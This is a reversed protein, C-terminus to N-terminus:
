REGGSPRITPLGNFQWERAFERSVSKHSIDFQPKNPLDASVVYLNRM